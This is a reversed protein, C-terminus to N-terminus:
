GSSAVDHPIFLAVLDALTWPELLDFRKELQDLRVALAEGIAPDSM